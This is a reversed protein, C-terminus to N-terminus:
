PMGLREDAAVGEAELRRGLACGVGHRRSALSGSLASAWQISRGGECVNPSPASRLAVEAPRHGDVSNRPLRAYQEM